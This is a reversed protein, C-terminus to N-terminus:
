AYQQVVPHSEPHTCATWSTQSANQLVVEPVQACLSHRVPAASALPQEVHAVLTQAIRGLQQEPVQSAV